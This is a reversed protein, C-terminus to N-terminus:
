NHAHILGLNLSSAHNYFKPQCGYLDGSTLFLVSVIVDHIIDLSPYSGQLPSLEQEIFRQELREERKSSPGRSFPNFWGRVRRLLSLSDM